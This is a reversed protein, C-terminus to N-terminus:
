VASLPARRSRSVRPRSDPLDGPSRLALPPAPPYLLSLDRIQISVLAGSQLSSVLPQPGQISVPVRVGIVSHFNHEKLDRRVDFCSKLGRAPADEFVNSSLGFTWIAVVGKDDLVFQRLLGGLATVCSLITGLCEQVRPLGRIGMAIDEELGFIMCFVTVISRREAMSSTNLGGELLERATEHVFAALPQQLM